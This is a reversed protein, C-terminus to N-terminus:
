AAQVWARTGGRIQQIEKTERHSMEEDTFHVAELIFHSLVTSAKQM